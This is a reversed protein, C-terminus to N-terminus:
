VEARLTRPGDASAAGPKPKKRSGQEELTTSDPEIQTNFMSHQAIMEDFQARPDRRTKYRKFLWAVLLAIVAIGGYFAYSWRPSEEDQAPKAVVASVSDSKAASTSAAAVAAAADVALKSDAATPTEAAPIATPIAVSPAPAPLPLNIATRSAPTSNTPSSATSTVATPAADTPAAGTPAIATPVAATTTAATPATAAAVAAESSLRKLTANVQALQRDKLEALKGLDGLNRELEAIRSNAEKLANDIATQQEDSSLGSGTSKSLVLRDYKRGAGASGERPAQASPNVNALAPAAAVRSKYSQFIESHRRLESAIFSDTTSLMSERSPIALTRNAKLQHISGFFAKPNARFIALMARDLAVDDAKVRAAIQALTDGEIVAVSSVDSEQNSVTAARPAASAGRNLTASAPKTEAAAPAQTVGINTAVPPVTRGIGTTDIRYPRTDQSLKSRLEILVAVNPEELPERTRLVVAMSQATRTELTIVIAQTGASYPMRAEEFSARSALQATLSDAEAPSVDLVMIEARLPENRGSQVTLPGLIAASALLPMLLAIMLIASSSNFRNM